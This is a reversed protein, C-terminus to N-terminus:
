QKAEKGRTEYSSLSLGGVSLSSTTSAGSFDRRHYGQKHSDDYMMNVPGGGHQFDPRSSLPPLHNRMKQPSDETLNPTDTSTNNGATVTSSTSSNSHTRHMTFASSLGQPLPVGPPAVGDITRKKMSNNSGGSKSGKSKSSGLSATDDSGSTFSSMPPRFGAGQYAAYMHPPPAGYPNTAFGPHYSGPAPAYAQQNQHHPMPPMTYQPRGRYMDHTPAGTAAGYGYSPHAGYAHPHGGGGVMMQSHYPAMPGRQQPPFHGTQPPQRVPVRGKVPNRKKPPVKKIKKAAAAAGQHEDTSDSRASPAETRGGTDGKDDRSEPESLTAANVTLSATANVMSVNSDKKEIAMMEPGDRQEEAADQSTSMVADTSM